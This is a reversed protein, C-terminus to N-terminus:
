IIAKRERTLYKYLAVVASIVFVIGLLGWVGGVNAVLTNDKDTDKTKHKTTQTVHTTVVLNKTIIKYFQMDFTKLKSSNFTGAKKWNEVKVTKKIVKGTNLDFEESTTTIANESTSTKGKTESEVSSSSGGEQTITKDVTKTAEVTKTKNIDVSAKRAGCGSTFIVVYLFLAFALIYLFFMGKDSSIKLNKM